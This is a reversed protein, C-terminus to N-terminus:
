IHHPIKESSMPVQMTEMNGIPSVFISIKLQLRSGPALPQVIFSQLRAKEARSARRVRGGAWSYVRGRM